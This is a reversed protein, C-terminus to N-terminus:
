GVHRSGERRADLANLEHRVMAVSSRHYVLTTGALAAPRIHPRAALVRQVRRLSVGLEAAITEATTLIPLLKANDAM